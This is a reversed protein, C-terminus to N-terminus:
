RPMALSLEKLLPFLGLYAGVALLFVMWCLGYTYSAIATRLWHFPAQKSSDMTRAGRNLWSQKVPHFFVWVKVFAGVWESLFQLPIYWFSIRRGHRWAATVRVTRTFLVWLLYAAVFDFRGAILACVWAVPGILATWMSVRQDVTCLWPFLRLRRPGLAIARGSNRLTNGSWRRLNAVARTFGHGEIVEYTTVIADPVYIMDYGHSVLWFWSSKDDGSFMRYEGFLWHELCDDEIQNIFSPNTAVDGRFISLRGTLCLLKRSLSVSCMTLHRQGFRLKIWEVFWRPGKVIIRENSTLAGIRSPLRFYPLMQNVAGESPVSDGDMLILVGDPHMGNDALYRLGLAIASRKGNEERLLILEPPWRDENEAKYNRLAAAFETTVAEDDGDSGTVIILRPARVVGDLMAFERVLSRVVSRTIEPHEKYTAMLVALEPTPGFKEVARLARRAVSPFCRVSVCHSAPLSLGGLEVAVPRDRRAICVLNYHQHGEDRHRAPDGLLRRRPDDSACSGTAAVQRDARQRVMRGPRRRRNWDVRHEDGTRLWSASILLSALHHSRHKRLRTIGVTATLGPLFHPCGESPLRIRVALRTGGTQVAGASGIGATAVWRAEVDSIAGLSDVTGVIKHEPYAVLRVDVKRGVDLYPLQSEDIWAELWLGDNLLLIAIPEGVRVSAGAEAVRAVVVGDGPARIFTADLDAQAVALVAKAEEIGVELLRVRAEEVELSALDTQALNIQLQATQERTKALFVEGQATWYSLLIADYETDSVIRDRNLDRCRTAERQWRELTQAATTSQQVARMKQQEALSLGEKFRARQHTLALRAAEREQRTRALAAEASAVVAKLHSNELEAIVEGQTVRSNHAVRWASVQGELRSGLQTVVGKITAEHTVVNQFRYATWQFLVACLLVGIVLSAAVYLARRLSKWLGFHRRGALEKPATGNRGAWVPKHPAKGNVAVRNAIPM